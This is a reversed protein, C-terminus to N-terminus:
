RLSPDLEKAKKFEQEAESKEGKRTLAMALQHHALAYNPALRVANRLQAIAGDVDGVTLLRKGSNTAFTAAQLSTSQKSLNASIKSEEEAGATDGM